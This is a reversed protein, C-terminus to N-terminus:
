PTDQHQKRESEVLDILEQQSHVLLKRYINAMHTKVTEKALNLEKSIHEKNRGHALLEAIEAERPTLRYKKAIQEFGVEETPQDNRSPRIAGWGSLPNQNSLLLLSSVPLAFALCVAISRAAGISSTSAMASADVIAIGSIQGVILFFTSLAVIWGPSCGLRNSFYSNICTIIIYLFCYGVTIVLSSAASSASCAYIVFGLATLPFGLQYILHNFDLNLVLTAVVIIVGGIAFALIHMGQDTAAIPTFSSIAAMAGLALGHAFCTLAYRMPFKMNQSLGHGYYRSRPFRNAIRGYCLMILLPMICLLVNAIISPLLLIVIHIATGGFLGITGCILISFPGLQAFIRGLEVVCAAAGIGMATAGLYELVIGGDLWASLPMSLAISGVCMLFAVIPLYFPMKAIHAFSTHRNWLVAYTIASAGLLCIKAGWLNAGAEDHFLTAPSQFFALQWTWYLSMCICLLEKGRAEEEGRKIFRGVAEPTNFVLFGM